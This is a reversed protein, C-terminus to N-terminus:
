CFYHYDDTYWCGYILLLSSPTCVTIFSVHSIVRMIGIHKWDAKQGADRKKRLCTPTASTFSHHRCKLCYLAVIHVKLMASAQYGVVRISSLGYRACCYGVVRFSSLGYRACSSCTGSQLTSSRMSSTLRPSRSMWQQSSRRSCWPKGAHLMHNSHLLTFFHVCHFVLLPLFSTLPSSWLCLCVVNPLLNAVCAHDAVPQSAAKMTVCQWSLPQCPRDLPLLHPFNLQNGVYAKHQLGVSCKRRTSKLTM